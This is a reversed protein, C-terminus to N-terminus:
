KREEHELILPLLREYFVERIDESEGFLSEIQKRLARIEEILALFDPLDGLGQRRLAEREEALRSPEISM